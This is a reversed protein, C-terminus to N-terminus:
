NSKKDNFNDLVDNTENGDNVRESNSDQKGGIQDLNVVKSSWM